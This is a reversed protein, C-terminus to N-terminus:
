CACRTQTSTPAISRKGCVLLPATAGLAALADRLAALEADDALGGAAADMARTPNVHKQTVHYAGYM